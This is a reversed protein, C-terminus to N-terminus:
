FFSLVSQPAANSQAFMASGTQQLIQLKVVEMQEKAFDADAIRSNAAQYNNMSTELNQAKFDLRNQADGIRGAAKNVKAIAGDIQGLAATAGEADSVDLDLAASADAAVTFTSGNAFTTTDDLTVSIGDATTYSAGNFDAATLEGTLDVAGSGDNYTLKLGSGETAFAFVGSAVDADGTFSSAAVAGADTGTVTASKSLTSTSLADLEIGFTQGAAAGVQFSLATGTGGGGLADTGSFLKKGNFESGGLIDDIESSLADLQSQIASREEAGLSDNGAQIAKEKMTQLIDMTSGLAGEGVTLMSKADGINSLAQAQGRTTATLKNSITFGASDDAASNIKSGTALRLQRMGIENSTKNLSSLSLAAQTNTNIRFSM